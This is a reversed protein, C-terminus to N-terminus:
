RGLFDDIIDETIPSINYKCLDSVDVWKAELFENTVQTSSAIECNYVIVFKKEKSSFFNAVFMNIKYEVDPLEELGIKLRELDSNGYEVEEGPFGWVGDKKVLFFERERFALGFVIRKIM